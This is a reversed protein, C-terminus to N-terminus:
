AINLNLKTEVRSIRADHDDLSTKIQRLITIMETQNEEISGLRKEIPELKEEVVDEVTQTIIERTSSLKNSPM